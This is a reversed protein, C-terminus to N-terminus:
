VLLTYYAKRYKLPPFQPNRAAANSSLFTNKIYNDDVKALQYKLYGITSLRADITLNHFPM